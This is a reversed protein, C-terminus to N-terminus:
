EQRIVNVFVSALKLCVIRDVEWMLAMRRLIWPTALVLTAVIFVGSDRKM